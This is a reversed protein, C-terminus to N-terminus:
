QAKRKRAKKGAAVTVAEYNDPNAEPSDAFFRELSEEIVKLDIGDVNYQDYDGALVTDRMHDLRLLLDSHLVVGVARLRSELEDPLYMLNEITEARWKAHEAPWAVVDEKIPAIVPEPPPSEEVVKGFMGADRHDDLWKLIAEELADAKRRGIGKIDALGPKARFRELEGFTDGAKERVMEITKDTVGYHTLAGIDVKEWADLERTATPEATPEAPSKESPAPLSSRAPPAIAPQSAQQPGDFLPMHEPGNECLDTLDDYLNSEDKKADSLEAKVEALQKELKKRQQVASALATAAEYISRKFDEEADFPEAIPEAIPDAAVETATEADLETATEDTAAPLPALAMSVVAEGMKRENERMVADWEAQVDQQVPDASAEGNGGADGEVSGFLQRSTENPGDFIRLRIM